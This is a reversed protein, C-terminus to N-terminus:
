GTCNQIGPFCAILERREDQALDVVGVNVHREFVHRPHFIAGEPGIVVDLDRAVEVESDPQAKVPLTVQMLLVAAEGSEIRLAGIRDPTGPAVIKWLELAFPFDLQFTPGRM